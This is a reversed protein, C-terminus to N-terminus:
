SETRRRLYAAVGRGGHQVPPDEGIVRRHLEILRAEAARRHRTDPDEDLTWSVELKCGADECMMFYPASSHGPDGLGKLYYDASHRRRARALDDLRTWRAGSEGIYLLGPEGQARFRYLGASSPILRCDRAHDLGQWESWAIGGWDASQPDATM